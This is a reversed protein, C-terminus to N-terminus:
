SITKKKQRCQAAHLIKIGSGPILGADRNGANAPVNKVWQAM